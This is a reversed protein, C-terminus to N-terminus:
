HTFQMKELISHKATNIFTEINEMIITPQLNLLLFKRSGVCLGFKFYFILKERETLKIKPKNTTNKDRM